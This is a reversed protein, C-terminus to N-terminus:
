CKRKREKPLKYIKFEKKEIPLEIFAHETNLVQTGKVSFFINCKVKEYEKTNQEKEAEIMENLVKKAKEPITYKGLCIDDGNKTTGKIIYKSMLSSNIIAYNYIEYVNSGEQTRVKLM